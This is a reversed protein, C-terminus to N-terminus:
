DPTSPVYASVLRPAAQCAHHRPPPPPPRRGPLPRTVVRSSSGTM